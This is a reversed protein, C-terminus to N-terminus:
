GLRASTGLRALLDPRHFALDFWEALKRAPVEAGVLDSVGVTTTEPEAVIEADLYDDVTSQRAPTAAARPASDRWSVVTSSGVTVVGGPDTSTVTLLETTWTAGIATSLQGRVSAPDAGPPPALDQPLLSVADGVTLVKGILALRLTHPSVS